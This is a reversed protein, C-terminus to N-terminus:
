YHVEIAIRNVPSPLGYIHLHPRRFLTGCCFLRVQESHAKWHGTQIDDRFLIRSAAQRERRKKFDLEEARYRADLARAIRQDVSHLVDDFNAMQAFYTIRLGNFIPM